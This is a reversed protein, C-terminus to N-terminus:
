PSFDKYSQKLVRVYNSLDESKQIFDKLSDEQGDLMIEEMNTLDLQLQKLSTLAGTIRLYIIEKQNELEEYSEKYNAYQEISKEYEVKLTDSKASERKQTLQGMEHDIESKSISSMTKVLEADRQILQKVNKSYNNLLEEIENGKNAKINKSSKMQKIIAHILKESEILIKNYTTNEEFLQPELRPAGKIATQGILSSSKLPPQHYDLGSSVLQMILRRRSGSFSLYHLAVITGWSLAPYVVWFISPTHLLNILLLFCNVSLYAGFNGAFFKERNQLKKVLQIQNETISEPLQVLRRLHKNATQKQFFHTGLAIGWGGLPYIFWFTHSSTLLNIAVLLTNVAGYVSLHFKFGKITNGVSKIAKELQESVPPKAKGSFFKAVGGFGYERKNDKKELRTLLGRDVLSDLIKALKEVPVPFYKQLIEVSVRRNISKLQKLVLPELMESDSSEDIPATIPTQRNVREKQANAYQSSIEPIPQIDREVDDIPFKTVIEYAYIEKSINKLKAKGLSFIEVDIKNLIQNYVDQSICIRGPRALSELRSAINVGEGFADNEFFWIDGLHIGIRLLLKKASKENYQFMSNQIELGCRVADNTNRFDILFADGITKIVNGGFNVAIERILENHIRLIRLTEKENEEMMRSFGCIDTFMVAALRYEEKMNM